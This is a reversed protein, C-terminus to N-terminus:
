TLGPTNVMKTKGCALCDMHVSWKRGDERTSHCLISFSDVFKMDPVKSAPLPLSLNNTRHERTFRLITSLCM